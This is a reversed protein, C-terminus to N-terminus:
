PRVAWGRLEACSVVTCPDPDGPYKIRGCQPCILPDRAIHVNVKM